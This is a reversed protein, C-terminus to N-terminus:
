GNLQRLIRKKGQRQSENLWEEIAKSALEDQERTAHHFINFRDVKKTVLDLLDDWALDVSPQTTYLTIQHEKNDTDTLKVMLRLKYEKFSEKSYNFGNVTKM